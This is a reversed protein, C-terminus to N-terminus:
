LMRAAEDQGIVPQIFQHRDLRRRHFVALDDFPVLVIDIRQFEHLDIHQRKAHQGAHLLAEIQQALVLVDIEIQRGDGRFIGRM